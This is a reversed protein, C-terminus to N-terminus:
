RKTHKSYKKLLDHIGEELLVNVAKDQEAAMIKLQRALDVDIRYGFSKRTVTLKERAM